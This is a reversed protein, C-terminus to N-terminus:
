FWSPTGAHLPTLVVDQITPSVFTQEWGGGGKYDPVFQRSFLAQYDADHRSLEVLKRYTDFSDLHIMWHIRDQQGFTEEYLYVTAEGGLARNVEKAWAFAFERAETRFKFATQATRLITLGSDVSSRMREEPLGTQHRAPPVFTDSAEHHDDHDDHDDDHEDLGHQPVYVREQFSGEVFMREWNGAGEAAAIRDAETIEKFSRDHDAIELFRSYDNPQKMHILWHLRDATGLIEEHVVITAVGEVVKNLHGVLDTAFERGQARFAHNLQGARHIIFGANGTHLLGSDSGLPGTRAPLFASRAGSAADTM